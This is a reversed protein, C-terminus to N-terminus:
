DNSNYSVISCFDKHPDEGEIARYHVKRRKEIKCASPDYHIPGQFFYLYYHPPKNTPIPDSRADSIQGLLLLILGLILTRMKFILSWSFHYKIWEFGKFYQQSVSTLTEIMIFAFVLKHYDFRSFHTVIFGERYSKFYISTLLRSM